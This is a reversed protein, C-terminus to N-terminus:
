TDNRYCRDECCMKCDCDGHDNVSGGGLGVGWFKDSPFMEEKDLM